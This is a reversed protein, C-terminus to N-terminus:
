LHRGGVSTIINLTKSTPESLRRYGEDLNTRVDVTKYVPRALEETYKGALNILDHIQHKSNQLASIQNDIEKVQDRYESTNRMNVPTTEELQRKRAELSAIQSDLAGLANNDQVAQRAKEESIGATILYHEKLRDSVIN